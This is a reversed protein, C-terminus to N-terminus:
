VMVGQVKHGAWLVDNFIRLHSHVANQQDLEMAFDAMKPSSHNIKSQTNWTEGLELWEIGQPRGDSSQGSLHVLSPWGCPMM